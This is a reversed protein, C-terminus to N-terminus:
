CENESDISAGRQFWWTCYAGMHKRRVFILRNKPNSDVHTSIQSEQMQLPLTFTVSHIFFGSGTTKSGLVEDM